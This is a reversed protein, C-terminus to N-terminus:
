GLTILKVRPLRIGLRAALLQIDQPRFQATFTLEFPEGESFRPFLENKMHRKAFSKTATQHFVEVMAAYLREYDEDSAIKEEADM